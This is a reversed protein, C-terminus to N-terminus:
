PNERSAENFYATIEAECEADVDRLSSPTPWSHGKWDPPETSGAPFMLPPHSPPPGFGGYESPDWAKWERLRQLFKEMVNEREQPDVITVRREIMKRIRGYLPSGSELPFPRPKGAGAYSCFHRAAAIVIGHLAREVAPPSFPTVSTPEVQAYLRQHYSKFREYHSRDRPKTQSYLVVVLGPADLSRGIRSSVQIYQSTTKPQGVIAMLGLRDIDVGVEIINSCLCADLTDRFKGEGIRMYPVELGQITLPIKDSRVRSTLEEWNLLQRIQTYPIGHRDLIVRLYDRADAVLLTAAGGLERLSNYFCVLTWWPDRESEDGDEIPMIAPYQLLAAYIRAQTTMQSGHGPAMIGLYLRGPKLSGDEKREERAFFSDGAELGSPPFLFIRERAYLARAQEGARSITATSAVIKPFVATNGATRTCLEEILTEYAGVMSGLPGSILHLEDQIILTPPIGEHAGNEGIGFIRRTEPKWAVMAFKDVTGIILNPPRDFIDEDIVLIPLPPVGPRAPNEGFECAPDNCRYAVTQQGQGQFRYTTYGYVKKGSIRRRRGRGTPGGGIRDEEVPGFKANCWPCKLLVFPNESEPSTELQKLASRAKQRTNPTAAGGVWMGLRFEPDGLMERNGALRRVHEMACFLLGARQFQQTTLLRLTYRMIVDAGAPNLGALRNYFITFAALGLYAETKGGGTPFWILDVVKRDKHDAECIGRISMLLFAIQFARWYGREPDPVAPDPNRIQRDWVFRGDEVKPIRVERSARLQAILVSHNALRFAERALNAEQTTSKLFAIGEKIRGLCEKCRAMLVRATDELNEPVPPIRNGLDDLEGIWQEYAEVLRAIEASGDDAPDLRALKRMSVRVLEGDRGKLDASISPTEFVPMCETWVESAISPREGDWEAACGHGIAFTQRDRYMLRVIEGEDEAQRNAGHIEPYPLIWPHRSEGRIRFGTQFFCLEDIRGADKGQKNVLCVTVIRQGSSVPGFPRPVLVVQLKNEKGPVWVRIPSTAQLVDASRFGVKISEGGPFIGPQRLWLDREWRKVGEGAEGVQVKARRYTAIGVEVSLGQAERGFHALFSLGMAPPRYANTLAVEQEETDEPVTRIRAAQRQARGELIEDVRVDPGPEGSEVIEPTTNAEEAIHGQETFGQPFLIGAGYRKVPSDQWLIEEGNLQRKPKRFDEWTLLAPNDEIIEQPTGSPDPGVIEARLREKLWDRNNLNRNLTAM